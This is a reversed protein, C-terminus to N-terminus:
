GILQYNCGHQRQSFSLKQIFKLNIANIFNNLDKFKFGGEAFDGIIAHHAIKATSGNWLFAKAIKNIQPIFDLPPFEIQSNFLFTSNVLANIVLNKGFITLHRQKWMNLIKEIKTIKSYFNQYNCVLKNKGFFHGLIKVNEVIPIGVFKDGGQQLDGEFELLLCESKTRNIELGSIKSFKYIHSLLLETSQKDKLFYTCDDAYATIKVENNLIKIGKINPDSRINILLIELCLIFTLPSIPDGQRTSREIDFFDSHHGNNSICSKGLTYVIKIWKKFNEGFNFIEFTKHIFAFDVSDFAKTYDIALLILDM